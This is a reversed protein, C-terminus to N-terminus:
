GLLKLKKKKEVTRPSLSNTNILSSREKDIRLQDSSVNQDALLERTKLTNCGLFTKKFLSDMFSFHVMGTAMESCFMQNLTDAPEDM